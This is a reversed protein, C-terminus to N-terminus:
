LTSTDYLENDLKLQKEVADEVYECYDMRKKKAASKVGSLIGHNMRVMGTRNHSIKKPQKKRPMM